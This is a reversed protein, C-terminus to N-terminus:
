ALWIPVNAVKHEKHEDQIRDDEQARRLRFDPVLLARLKRLAAPYIEAMWPM